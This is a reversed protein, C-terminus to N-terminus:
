GNCLLEKEIKAMLRVYQDCTSKNRLLLLRNEMRVKGATFEKVFAPAKEHRDKITLIEDQAAAIIEHQAAIESELWSKESRKVHLAIVSSRCKLTEAIDLIEQNISLSRHQHVAEM